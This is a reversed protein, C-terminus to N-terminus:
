IRKLIITTEPFTEIMNGALSSCTRGPNLKLMARGQM